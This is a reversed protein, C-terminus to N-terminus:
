FPLEITEPNIFEYNYDNELYSIPSNPFTIIDKKQLGWPKWYDALVDAFMKEDWFNFARDIDEEVIPFSEIIFNNQNSEIKYTPKYKLLYNTYIFRASLEEFQIPHLVTEGIKKLMEQEKQLVAGNDQLAAVIGFGNMGLSFMLKITDDRYNFIDKSYKLKVIAISWPKHESFQIPAVLSQLMLHFLSFKEKLNDSIKLQINKKEQKEKELILDHYLVGYVMRGMWLFLKQTDLSKVAEYGKDFATQIEMDLNAFAQKVKLSCPLKLDKYLFSTVYDMMTFTKDNLEYQNLIWQPFVTITDDEQMLDVGTLFCTKNDLFVNEFPNYLQISM